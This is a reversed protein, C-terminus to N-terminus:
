WCNLGQSGSLSPEVLHLAIMDWNFLMDRSLGNKGVFAFPVLALKSSIPPTESKEKIFNEAGVRAQKAFQSDVEGKSDFGLKKLIWFVGRKVSRNSIDGLVSGVKPMVDKFNDGRM